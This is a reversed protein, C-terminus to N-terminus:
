APVAELSTLRVLSDSRVSVTSGSACQSTDFRFYSFREDSEAMKQETPTEGYASKYRWGCEIPEKPCAEKLILRFQQVLDKKHKADECQFVFLLKPPTQLYFKVLFPPRRDGPKVKTEDEEEVPEIMVQDFPLLPQLLRYEWDSDNKPKRFLKKPPLIIELLGIYRSFLSVSVEKGTVKFKETKKATAPKYDVVKVAQNYRVRSNLQMQRITDRMDARRDMPVDLPRFVQKSGGLRGNSLGLLSSDAKSLAYFLGVLEVRAEVLKGCAMEFSDLLFKCQQLGDREVGAPSHAALVGIQNKLEQFRRYFHGMLMGLSQGKGSESANLREVGNEYHNKIGGNAKLLGDLFEM